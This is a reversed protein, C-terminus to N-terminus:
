SPTSFFAPGSRIIRRPHVVRSERTPSPRSGEWTAASRGWPPITPATWWSRSSPPRGAFLDREFTPPIILAAKARQGQVDQISDAPSGAGHLLFYRSSGFSDLLERSSQSQDSDSVALEINRMNFDISLGYLVVMVVPFLLALVLTFPDRLIHHVEKRAIAFAREPVFRSQIPGPAKPGTM